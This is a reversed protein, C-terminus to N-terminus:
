KYFARHVVVPGRAATVVFALSPGPVDSTLLAAAGPIPSLTPRLGAGMADSTGPVTLPDAGVDVVGSTDLIGSLSLFDQMQNTGDTTAVVM